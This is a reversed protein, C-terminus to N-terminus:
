PTVKKKKRRETAAQQRVYDLYSKGSKEAEKSIVKRALHVQQLAPDGPFEAQVIEQIRKIENESLKAGM